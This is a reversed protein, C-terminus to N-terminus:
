ALVEGQWRCPFSFRARCSEFRRGESEYDVQMPLTLCGAVGMFGRPFGIAAKLLSPRGAQSRRCMGVSLHDFVEASFSCSQTHLPLTAGYFRPSGCPCLAM